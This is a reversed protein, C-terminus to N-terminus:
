LPESYRVDHIHFRFKGDANLSVEANFVRQTVEKIFDDSTMNPDSTYAELRFVMQFKPNIECM